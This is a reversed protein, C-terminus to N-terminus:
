PNGRKKAPCGIYTGPLPLDRVVVSGAGVLIDDSIAIGPIVVTRAGLMTRAGVTVGGALVSGPAIHAAPGILCDHEVVAGSNIISFDMIQAEANVIVNPMILVGRGIKASPSIAASRSVASPTAYGLDAAQKALKLRLPNSGIALFVDRVGDAYLDPLIEDGGLIPLDLVHGGAQPSICGIPDYDGQERLTEICVKAHGGAGIILLPRPADRQHPDLTQDPM